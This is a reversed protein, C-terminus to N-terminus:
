LCTLAEGEPLWNPDTCEPVLRNMFFRFTLDEETSQRGTAIIDADGDGNYDAIFVDGFTLGSFGSLVQAEEFRGDVNEYLRLATDGLIKRKGILVIDLDGDNDYDGWRVKGAMWGGLDTHTDTLTGGDNRYLRTVGRLLAPDLAGGSLLLDADGDDDYDGWALASFALAPLGADTPTFTGGDNRYVDTVFRGNEESGSLALDLDGDGDLDGWALASFRLGPLRAGTDIFTGDDNRYIRTVPTVPPELRTAGTVAVDLDGDGDFDGWAAEGDYVGTPLEVFADTFFNNRNIYVRAIPIEVLGSVTVSETIGTLLMDLDGDNDYDGWKASSQRVPPVLTTNLNLDHFVKVKVPIAQEGVSVNFTSDDTRYVRTIAQFFTTAGNSFAARGTLLLDLDGDGDYDGWDMSGLTIPRITYPILWFKPPALTRWLAGTLLIALLALAPVRAAFRFPHSTRFPRRM